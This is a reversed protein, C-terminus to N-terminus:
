KNRITDSNKNQKALKRFYGRFFINHQLAKLDEDLKESSTNLNKTINKLDSAVQPDNLITGALNDTKNLSTGALNLNEAFASISTSADKFQSITKQLNTFLL